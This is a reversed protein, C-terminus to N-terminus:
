IKYNAIKRDLSEAVRALEAATGAVDSVTEAIRVSIEVSSEIDRNASDVQSRVRDRTAVEQQMAQAIGQASTAVSAVQQSIDRLFQVNLDVAEAGQLVVVDVEEILNRIERTSNASREALKRVEEAVVAFGKGLSGAKAAEIAANLSLLNTQRAIDQIVLVARTMRETSGQIAAMARSAAEGASIGSRSAAVAQGTQQHSAALGSEVESIITAMDEMATAVQGMGAKQQGGSQAIGESGTRVQELITSIRASGQAVRQADAALAQFMTRFQENSKNYARGLAGIEDEPLNDLHLTLDLKEMGALLVSVPVILNRRVIVFFVVAVLATGFLGLGLTTLRMTWLFHDIESQDTAAVMALGWREFERRDLNWAHGLAAHGKLVEAVVEQPLAAPGFVVAGSPGLLTVFGHDLISMHQVAEGIKGLSSIKFGVYAIGITRGGTDQIPEYGTLYPSGLITVMGYYPQNRLIAQIAKGAPDLLTGVARSGDPKKVNTAIRIFSDGRRSFITATGSMREAVRDVLEFHGAVPKGGLLLDPVTEAGVTAMPGAAVAGAHGIEGRLDKMAGTVRESLVADTATLVLDLSSLAAQSERRATRQLAFGAYTSFAWAACTAGILTMICAPLM